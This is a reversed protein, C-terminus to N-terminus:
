HMLNMTKFANKEFVCKEKFDNEKCFNFLNLLESHVQELIKFTFLEHVHITNFGLNKTM